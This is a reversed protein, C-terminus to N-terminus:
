NPFSPLSDVVGNIKPFIDELNQILVNENGGKKIDEKTISTHNMFIPGTETEDWKKCLNPLENYSNTFPLHSHMNYYVYISKGFNFIMDIMGDSDVDVFEVLPINMNPKYDQKFEIM